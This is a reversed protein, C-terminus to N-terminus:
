QNVELINSRYYDLLSPAQRSQLAEEQTSSSVDYESALERYEGRLLDGISQRRVGYHRSAEECSMFYSTIGDHKVRVPRINRKWANFGYPVFQMNDPFYGIRPDIRDISPILQEVRGSATYEEWLGLLAARNDNCFRAWEIVTLYDTGETYEGKHVSVGNCRNVISNYKVKLRENLEDIGTDIDAYYKKRPKLGLERLRKYFTSTSVDWYKCMDTVSNRCKYYDKLHADM